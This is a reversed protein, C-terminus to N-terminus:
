PEERVFRVARATGDEGVVVEAKIPFIAWDPHVPLGLTGLLSRPVLTRILRGRELPALQQGAYLPFFDTLVEEDTEDVQDVPEGARKSFDATPLPARQATTPTPRRRPTKAAPRPTSQPRVPAGARVSLAMPQGEERSFTAPPTHQTVVEPAASPAPSPRFWRIGLWSVLLLSAALAGVALAPSRWRRTIFLPRSRAPAGLMSRLRAEVERPAELSADAAALLALGEQLQRQRQAFVRCPICVLLHAAVAEGSEVEMREQLSKQGELIAEQCERCSM